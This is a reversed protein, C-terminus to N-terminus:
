KTEKQTTSGFGGEGRLTSSLTSVVELEPTHVPVILFQLLADGADWRSFGVDQKRLFAMWEGRYDADIVGVTNNLQIGQKAGASSRPLLLAVHGQPVEAAFGLSVKYGNHEGQQLIGAVPMYIDYGGALETARTPLRFNPHMPMVKM